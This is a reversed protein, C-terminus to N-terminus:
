PELYSDLCEEIAEKSTKFKFWCGPKMFKFKKNSVNLFNNDGSYTEHHGWEIRKFKNMKCMMIYALEGIDLTDDTLINFIGKSIFDNHRELCFIDIVDKLDEISLYPKRAGPQKGFPRLPEDNDGIKSIFDKVVGHTLGPGVVAPLRLIIPHIKKSYSHILAECAVKSAAYVNTPNLVDKETYAEGSRKADGYVVISSAFIFRTEPECHELLTHTSETNFSWSDSDQPRPNAALHIIIEPKFSSLALRYISKYDSTFVWGDFGEPRSRGVTRVEHNDKLHQILNRGIFGGAGTVLIRM